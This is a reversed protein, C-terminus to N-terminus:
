KKMYDKIMKLKKLDNQLAEDLLFIEREEKNFSVIWELKKNIDKILETKYNIINM